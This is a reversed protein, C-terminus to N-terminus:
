LKELKLTEFDNNEDAVLTLRYRGGELFSDGIGSLDRELQDMSLLQKEFALANNLLATRSEEMVVINRASLSFNQLIAVYALGMITVAVLIEILTFGREASRPQPRRQGARSADSAVLQEAM